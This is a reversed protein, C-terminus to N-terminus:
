LSEASFKSGLCYLCSIAHYLVETSYTMFRVDELTMVVTHSGRGNNNNYFLTSMLQKRLLRWSEKLIM